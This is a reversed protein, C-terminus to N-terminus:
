RPTAQPAWAMHLIGTVTVNGQASLLIGTATRVGDLRDGLVGDLRDGLVGDLRDGLVGDLRAGLVGDVSLGDVGGDTVLELEADKLGVLM